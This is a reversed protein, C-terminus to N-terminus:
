LVARTPRAPVHSKLGFLGMLSMIPCSARDLWKAMFCLDIRALGDEPICANRVDDLHHISPEVGDRSAHGIFIDRQVEVM